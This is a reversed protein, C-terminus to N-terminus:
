GPSSQPYLITRDEIVARLFDGFTKAVIAPPNAGDVRYITGCAISDQSFDAAFWWCDIMYDAVIPLAAIESYLPSAAIEGVSMWDELAWFIVAGNEVPTMDVTGNM